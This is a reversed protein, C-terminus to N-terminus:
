PEDEPFLRPLFDLDLFLFDVFFDMMIIVSSSSSSMGTATYGLLCLVNFSSELLFFDLFVFFEVSKSLSLPERCLFGDFAELFLLRLLCSYIEPSSAM